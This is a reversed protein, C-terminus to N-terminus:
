GSRLAWLNVNERASADVFRCVGVKGGVAVGDDALLCLGTIGFGVKAGVALDVTIGKEAAVSDVSWRTPSLGFDLLM